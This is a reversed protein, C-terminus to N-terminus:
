QQKKKRLLVSLGRMLDSPQAATAASPGTQEGGGGRLAFKPKAFTGAVSFPFTMKGNAFKAGAFGGLVLALPNKEDAAVSAEAQYDLSGEDAMTLNGSGDVEVGNGVLIIRKSSLRGDAIQFDASLSTFSSPDGNTPGVSAIRVLRLLNGTVQLSPMKGNQVTGRGAGDIGALPDSSRVVEGSMKAEGELTGTMMRMAQPFADLFEAVNVGKVRAYTRYSLNPKTFDLSLDGTATGGYCNMDLNAFSVLKPYLRVKAKLKTVDVNGIHLAAAKLTGHAAEPGMTDAAFVTPNLWEALHALQNTQTKPTHLSVTAFANLDVQRLNISAGTVEMLAPGPVGSALLTAASVNGRSVMLKSIVGLTFSPGHGKSANPPPETPASAPANEFNWKGHSDELMNLTLDDLELSTIEVQHHLLAFVDAVAYVKQAAVFNGSPFGAPNGLSFNDVRIAVVPLVTLKLHGIQTPKGTEQQIQAVVMPRYRDVDILLPIIAALALVVVVFGIALVLAIRKGKSM